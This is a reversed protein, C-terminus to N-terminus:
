TNGETQLELEWKEITEKRFFLKKIDELMVYVCPVLILTILTAFLIGFSLSIAMPILFKAQLDTELLMPTLGAFTTLSTLIIPRFRKAGAEWAAGIVGEGDRRHRNVYDVLVLSDNVVVGALAVIGCMSMISLETFTVIHGLVAGVIGFPIASMIILPQFYSRLPIAMLVYMAILAFIFGTGIDKVSDAQDKQEGEFSWSVGPFKDGINKLTKETLGAVVQNANAEKITEDIDAVIKITRRNDTRRIVDYGRGLELEAVDRIPIEDGAATRIKVQEIDEVSEREDRPYRVMVKVEDRGRQLRLAEDGYFGARLQRGVDALRLGLAKGSPTLERLKLERKGERNNDAIDIVGKYEALAAKIHASAATLNEFNSGSIELDIANGGGSAQSQFAVEVAGPIPGSENRWMAAIEKASAPRNRVDTLEITVEGFHTDTPIGEAAFGTQYPQSGATNLLHKILPRGEKEYRENLRWAADEIQQLSRQTTEFPVGKPLTLKASIIDAEVEPFFQSPIWGAIIISMVFTFLAFFITLVVWRAHLAVKLLPRYVNNAFNELGKVMTHQFKSFGKRERNPDSPPLAALHAPLILKSQVLSFMLTPIVIWPINRWIKGSVGSVGLMPTFAVATTIIGFIVVIGVEHTGKWSAERPHEGLRMRRYVNEGVVIADDVVIGLVLIFAFLTIMNISIDFTPMMWIAGCFSVPIGVAVLAALSPRLFLALVAFVLTLGLVGNKVLLDMRGSLFTSQDNWIEITVGGPLRQRAQKLYDKVIAVIELTDEEGVRFVNVLVAPRGDFQSSIDVEEFGDVITAIEDLLLETGDARTLVPIDAYDQGEFRKGVTRILVEGARTRVSGGPLDISTSRVANAVVELTLGHSRLTEESVEISIEYPRVNALEVQTITPNGTTIGRWANILGARLNSIGGTGEVKPRQFVLLDDRVKEAIERLTREDTAASIAISLVQFKLLVEEVVPEEAEEALNEIADVRTKADDMIDRVNYGNKVEVAVTGINEAATSRVRDIGDIDQIAEEIPLIIGTEVEDPSANPYPVSVVFSDTATEPFIEKKLSFWTNVGFLAIALMLFNAAVHNRSFWHIIGNM